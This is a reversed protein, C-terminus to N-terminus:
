SKEMEMMIKGIENEIKDLVIQIELRVKHIDDIYQQLTYNDPIKDANHRPDKIELLGLIQDPYIDVVKFKLSSVYLWYKKISPFYSMNITIKRMVNKEFFNKELETRKNKFDIKQKEDIEELKNNRLLSEIKFSVEANHRGFQGVLEYLAALKELKFRYLFDANNLKQSYKYQIELKDIESKIQKDIKIQENKINKKSVQNSIYGSLLVTLISTFLGIFDSPNKLFYDIM